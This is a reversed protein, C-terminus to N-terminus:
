WLEGSIKDKISAFIIFPASYCDTKPINRVKSGKKNLSNLRKVVSFYLKIGGRKGLLRFIKLRHVDGSEHM